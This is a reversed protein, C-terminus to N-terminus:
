PKGRLWNHTNFTRDGGFNIRPMFGQFIDKATTVAPIAEGWRNYFAAGARAEPFQLQLLSRETATKAAQATTASEQAVRLSIDKLVRDLLATGGGEGGMQRWQQATLMGQAATARQQSSLLENRLHVQDILDAKQANLLGTQAKTMAAQAHRQKVDAATAAGQQFTNGLDPIENTQPNGGGQGYALAPNLGAAKIDAVTDQYRHKFASRAQFANVLGSAASLGAGILPIAATM